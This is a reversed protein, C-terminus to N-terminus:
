TDSQFRYVFRGDEPRQGEKQRMVDDMRYFVSATRELIFDAGAFAFASDVIHVRVEIALPAVLRKAKFMDLNRYDIQGFSKGDLADIIHYFADAGGARCCFILSLRHFIKRKIAFIGFLFTVKGLRM